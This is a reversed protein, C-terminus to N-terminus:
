DQSAGNAGGTIDMPESEANDGKKGATTSSFIVLFQFFPLACRCFFKGSAFAYLILVRSELITSNWVVFYRAELVIAEFRVKRKREEM